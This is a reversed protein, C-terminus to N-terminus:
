RLPEDRIALISDLQAQSLPVHPLSETSPRMGAILLDLHRRWADPAVSGTTEVISRISFMVMTVDTSTLDPRVRHHRQADALLEAICRRATRVMEHDTDWLRPLCGPCDAQYAGSAQLFQELGGGEPQSAAERAMRITTELVDHVVAEILADKTPFRRYLTGM